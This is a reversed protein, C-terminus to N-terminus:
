YKAGSMARSCRYARFKDWLKRILVAPRDAAAAFFQLLGGACGRDPRKGQFMSIKRQMMGRTTRTKQAPCRKIYAYTECKKAPINRRLIGSNKACGCGAGGSFFLSLNRFFLLTSFFSCVTPSQKNKKTFTPPSLRM